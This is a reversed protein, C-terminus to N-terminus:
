CRTYLLDSYSVNNSYIVYVFLLCYELTEWGKLCQNKENGRAQRGGM